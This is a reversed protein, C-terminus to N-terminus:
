LTQVISEAQQKSPIPDSVIPQDSWNDSVGRYAAGFSGRNGSYDAIIYGGAYSEIVYSM